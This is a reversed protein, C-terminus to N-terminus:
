RRRRTRFGRGVYFVGSDEGKREKALMKLHEMYRQSGSVPLDKLKEQLRDEFPQSKQSIRSAIGYRVMDNVDLHLADGEKLVDGDKKPDSVAQALCELVTPWDGEKPVPDVRHDTILMGSINLHM